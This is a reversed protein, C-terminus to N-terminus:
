VVETNTSRRSANRQPIPPMRFSCANTENRKRTSAYAAPSFHNAFSNRTLEFPKSQGHVPTVSLPSRMGQAQKDCRTRNSISTAGIYAGSSCKTKTLNLIPLFVLVTRPSVSQHKLEWRKVARTNHSYFFSSFSASQSYICSLFISKDRFIVALRAVIRRHHQKTSWKGAMSKYPKPVNRQM